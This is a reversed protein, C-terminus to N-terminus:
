RALAFLNGPLREILSKMELLTVAVAAQAASLGSAETVVDLHRPTQDFHALIREEDPTLPVSPRPTPSATRALTREVPPPAADKVPATVSAPQEIMEQVPTDLPLTPATKTTRARTSRTRPPVPDGEMPVDIGLAQMVDEPCDALGAGDQILRHCGKSRGSDVAGPVAWVDRGYDAADRATILAGSDVPSELVLTLRTMGAIIRNRTPFRWPEPTTEMPFESIVAGGREVIRAFLGKNEAPYTVDVGCGLVAITRGGAELASKHAATDIGAAGGSVVTIGQATFARAFRDTQARGYLTARRSGVMAVALTDDPLLTGRVFLLPPANPVSDLLSPYAPDAFSVVAADLEVSKQELRPSVPAAIADRLRETQRETLAIAPGRWVAEPLAVAQSPLGGAYELLARLRHPPLLATALWQAAQFEDFADAARFTTATNM